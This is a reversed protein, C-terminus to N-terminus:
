IEAALRRSAGNIGCDDDEEDVEVAATLLGPKVLVAVTNVATTIEKKILQLSGNESPVSQESFAKISM